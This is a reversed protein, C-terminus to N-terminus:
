LINDAVDQKVIRPITSIYKGTVLSNPKCLSQNFYYIKSIYWNILIKNERKNPNGNGIV